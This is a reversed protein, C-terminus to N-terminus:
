ACTLAEIGQLMKWALVNKLIGSYLINLIVIHIFAM